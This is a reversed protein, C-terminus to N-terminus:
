GLLQQIMIETLEEEPLIKCLSGICGSTATRTADEQVGLMGVLTGMIGKRSADSMKEGAGCICFRLAQLMTDRFISHINYEKTQYLSYKVEGRLLFVTM